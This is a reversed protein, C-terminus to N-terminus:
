RHTRAAALVDGAFADADALDHMELPVAGTGSLVTAYLTAASGLRFGFLARGRRVHVQDIDALSAAHVRRPFPGEIAVLRQDTLLLVSTRRRLYAWALLVPVGVCVIVAALLSVLWLGFAAAWVFAVSWLLGIGLAPLYISRHLVTRRRVWEAPM